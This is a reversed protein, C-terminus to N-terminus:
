GIFNMVLDIMLDKEKPNSEAILLTIAALSNNDVIRAGDRYLLGYFDLAYVFLTAGIRKNGDVFVHNKVVLYLLNAIKEEVTKYVDEGGFSQYVNLLISRLSCKEREVGFVDSTESYKLTKIVKLCEEYEIVKDSKVGKVKPIAKHDYDNLLDLAKTYNGLVNLIEKADDGGELRNNTRTAVDLLRVTKELVKLREENVAYGKLMYDKLVKNAWKRFIVGNKSKVRYGVSIIVDLNYIMVDKDSNAIHIKQVNSKEELEGEIFINRIHRGIVTRDKGFLESIQAQTLWVTEDKLEVNLKIDQNKFVIIEDNM